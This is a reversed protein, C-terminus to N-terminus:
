HVHLLMILAALGAIISLDRLGIDWKRFSFPLITIWWILAVWAGILPYLGLALWLGFIVNGAAHMKMQGEKSMPSMKALGEPIYHIWAGPRVFQHIGFVVMTLATGLRILLIAIQVEM